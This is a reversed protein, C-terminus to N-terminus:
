RASATIKNEQVLFDAYILKAVAKYAQSALSKRVVRFLTFVVQEFLTDEDITLIVRLSDSVKLSYLTSEYDNILNVKHLRRLKKFLTLKNTLFLQASQNIHNIIIKREENKFATLEKEFHRTSEFLIEM